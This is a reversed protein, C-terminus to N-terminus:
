EPMIGQSPGATSWFWDAQASAICYPRDICDLWHAIQSLEHSAGNQATAIVPASRQRDALTM